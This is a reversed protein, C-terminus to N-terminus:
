LVHIVITMKWEKWNWEVIQYPEIKVRHGVILFIVHFGITVRISGAWYKRWAPSKKCAKEWSFCRSDYGFQRNLVFFCYCVFVFSRFYRPICDLLSFNTCTHNNSIGACCYVQNFNNGPLELSWILEFFKNRPEKTVVRILIVLHARVQIM